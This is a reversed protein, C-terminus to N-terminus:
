AIDVKIEQDYKFEEWLNSYNTNTEEINMMLEPLLEIMDRKSLKKSVLLHDVFRILLHINDALLQKVRIKQDWLLKEVLDNTGTIDNNCLPEDGLYIFSARNDFGHSRVFNSAMATARNLDGANGTTVIDKGFILEEAISGALGVCINSLLKDKTTLEQDMQFTYGGKWSALSVNVEKPVDGSTLIMTLAHGAEHVAIMTIFDESTMAKITRVDLDVPVSKTDIDKWTGTIVKKDVDIDLDIQEYRSELAWVSILTLASSFIKHISSFVPRTGQTPYVSNIYIEKYIEPNVTYKIGAIKSMDSVYKDCTTKIIKEYSDKSLSPYIIHNNGFRSIQEPQFRKKLAEKVDNTTIKSSLEHYIDADTDCDGTQRADHYVEDLNGSIFILLKTYNTEHGTAAAAHAKAYAMITDQSWTMIEEIRNPIKLLKKFSRAQWPEMKFKKSARDKPIEYDDDDAPEDPNDVNYAQVLFMDEIERFKSSNAPLKGDSLLMWVDQYRKIDVDESQKGVTRYRQIEDLLLVGPEGETIASYELAGAISNASNYNSQSFGDMQIELFCKNLNLIQVLRRVLQTKGVGTMGWLNIIVPRTILQPFAYWAYISDIVRDIILDLGFFEQKLVKKCNELESKKTQIQELDIV